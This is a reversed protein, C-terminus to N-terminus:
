FKFAVGVRATTSEDGASAVGGSIMIPTNLDLRTAFNFGLGTEDEYYGLGFAFGTEGRDLDPLPTMQALTSAVGRNLKGVSDQLQGFTSADTRLVGDGVNMLRRESGPAGFSVVGAESAVSGSGIAVSNAFTARSDPGIATANTGTAQARDGFAAGGNSAVAM